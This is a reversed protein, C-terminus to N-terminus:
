AAKLYRGAIGTLANVGAAKSVYENCGADLALERNSGSAFASFAVIVVGCLEAIGRIIRTAALGDLLPMQIDMFILDPCNERALEVAELGNRAEIVDYGCLRLQLAILQRLDDTDDVVLVTKKKGASASM